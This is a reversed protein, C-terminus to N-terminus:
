KWRNHMWFYEEPRMRIMKEVHENMRTSNRELFEEQTWNPNTEVKLEPFVHMDHEKLSKRVIMVPIIPSPRQQWLYFLGTNTLAPKGFFPVRLGKRRRQDVMFGILENRDLAEFINRQGASPGDRLIEYEGNGERRKRVWAAVAGSGVPKTVANTRAFEKTGTTCMLEINGMHIGMVYAGIGQKLANDLHERNHLTVKLQPFLKESAFFELTMLIFNRTSERAIRLKEKDSFSNGFAINLNNFIVKRRLRFIDFSLFGLLTAFIRLGRAGLLALYFSVVNLATFLM